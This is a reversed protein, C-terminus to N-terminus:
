KLAGPNGKLGAPLIKNKFILLYHSIIKLDRKKKKKKEPPIPLFALFKKKKKLDQIQRTFSIARLSVM